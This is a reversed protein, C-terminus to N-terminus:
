ARALKRLGLLLIALGVAGLMAAPAASRGYQLAPTYAFLAAILLAPGWRTWRRGSARGPLLLPAAVVLAAALAVLSLALQAHLAAPLLANPAGGLTALLTALAALIALALAGALLPRASAPRTARLLAVTALAYAVALIATPVRFTAAFPALFALAFGLTALALAGLIAYGLTAAKLPARAERPLTFLLGAFAAPLTAGVLLTALGASPLGHPLAILLAGGAGIAVLSVAVGALAVGDTAWHPNPERAAKWRPSLLLAIPQLAGLVLSAGLLAAFARAHWAFPIALAGLSVAAIAHVPTPWDRRAFAPALGLAVALALYTAGTALLLASAHPAMPAGALTAFTAIIGLALAALGALFWVRVYRAHM